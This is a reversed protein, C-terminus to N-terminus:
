LFRLQKKVKVLKKIFIVFMPMFIIIVYLFNIEETRYVEFVSYGNEKFKNMLCLLVAICTSIIAICTLCLICLIDYKRKLKNKNQMLTNPSYDSQKRM